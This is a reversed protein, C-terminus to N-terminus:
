KPAVEAVLARHDSEPIELTHTSIGAFTPGVLVHDIEVVNPISIGLVSEGTAPWTPQWGENALEAASRYGGNALARMQPHDTTANFDGVVLDPQEDAVATRILYHDRRWKAIDTLVYPHVAFLTYKGMPVRWSAGSTDLPTAHGLRLDAFVMTGLKSRGPRGARHPFLSTLGASEMRALAAPTVETVVLLDIDEDSAARVVDLGDARGAYLNVVMVRLPEAGARPPPNAGSIMPSFWAIHLALGLAVAAAALGRGWRRAMAFRVLLALLAVGYLVIALPTFAELRVWREGWPEFLRVVTLVVAPVLLLALALLGVVRGRLRM